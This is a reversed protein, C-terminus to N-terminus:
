KLVSRLTPSGSRAYISMLKDYEIRCSWFCRERAIRGFSKRPSFFGAGLHDVAYRTDWYRRPEWAVLDAMQLAECHKSPVPSPTGTILACVDKGRYAFHQSLYRDALALRASCRDCNDFACEARTAPRNDYILAKIGAACLAFPDLSLEADRSFRELDPLPTCVCVGELEVAAVVVDVLATLFNKRLNENGKWNEFPTKPASVTFERMHLYPVGFTNLVRKWESRAKKWSGVTGVMGAVCCWADSREVGSISDDFYGKLTAM